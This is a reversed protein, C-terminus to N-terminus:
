ASATFSPNVSAGLNLADFGYQADDTTDKSIEVYEDYEVEREKDDAENSWVRSYNAKDTWANHSLYYRNSNGPDKRLQNLEANKSVLWAKLTTQELPVFEPNSNTKEESGLLREMIGPSTQENQEDEETSIRSPVVQVREAKKSLYYAYPLSLVNLAFIPLASVVTLGSASLNRVIEIPLATLLAFTRFPKFTNPNHGWYQLKRSILPLVTLDLLGKSGYGRKDSDFHRGKIVYFTDSLAQWFGTRYFRALPFRSKEIFLEHPYMDMIEEGARFYGGRPYKIGSHRFYEVIQKFLSM